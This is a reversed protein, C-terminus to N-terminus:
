YVRTDSIIPGREPGLSIISIYVNDGRDDCLIKYPQGWPDHTAGDTLDAVDRPCARLSREGLADLMRSEAERAVQEKSTSLSAILGNAAHVALGLGIAGLLVHHRRIRSPRHVHRVLKRM